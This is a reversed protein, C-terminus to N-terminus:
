NFSVNLRGDAFWRFNPADSDDLARTFATHWTLEKRALDAWFGVPDRAAERRLREFESPTVRARSSFDASPAFSREELLVSEINKNAM